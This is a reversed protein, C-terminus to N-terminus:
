RIVGAKEIRWSSLQDLTGVFQRPDGDGIAIAIHTADFGELAADYSVWRGGDWVQVWAHPSFVDKKGSFRDSYALGSVLRASLGEARALAALLVAFESCDGSRHELAEVATSYGLYDVPGTMRERVLQVLRQMRMAASADGRKRRALARIRSDASQVWANPARFRALEEATATEAVGCTACITVIARHGDWALAQESTELVHPKAGDIRSIVYRIPGDMSARPIRYPSRVVSRAIPDFPQEVRADCDRACSEWRLRSGHFQQERALLLGTGDFWLDERDAPGGADKLLRVRIVGSGSRAPAPVTAASVSSWGARALDFMPVRLETKAGSWLPELGTAIADPLQLRQPLQIVVPGRTATAAITMQAADPAFTGQWGGQDVGASADVSVRLPEGTLAREIRLNREITSQRRFQTVEIRLHEAYIRRDREQTTDQRVYGVREGDITLTYWQSAAAHASVALLFLATITPTATTV